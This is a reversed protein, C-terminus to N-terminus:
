QPMPLFPLRRRLRVIPNIETMCNHLLSWKTGVLSNLHKIIQSDYRRACIIVHSKTPKSETVIFVGNSYHYWEGRVYVGVGGLPVGILALLRDQRTFPRRYTLYIHSPSLTAVSPIDYRRYRYYGLMLVAVAIRLTDLLPNYVDFYYWVANSLMELTECTGYAVVTCWAAIHCQTLQSLIVCLLVVQLSDVLDDVYWATEPTALYRSLLEVSVLALLIKKM